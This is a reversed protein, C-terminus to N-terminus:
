RSVRVSARSKQRIATIAARCPAPRNWRAPSHSSLRVPVLRWSSAQRIKKHKKALMSTVFSTASIVKTGKASSASPMAPSVRRAIGTTVMCVMAALRPLMAVGM